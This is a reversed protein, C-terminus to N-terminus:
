WVNNGGPAYVSAGSVLVLQTPDRGNLPMEVIRKQDVVQSISNEQTQVTGLSAEVEVTQSVSGISLSANVQIHDGVQLLIGKTIHAQFGSADVQLSYGGIPISTLSYLGDANSTTEHKVGTDTAIAVIHANPVVAGQSDTINGTISAVAVAQAYLGVVAIFPSLLFLIALSKLTRM